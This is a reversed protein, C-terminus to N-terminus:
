KQVLIMCVWEVVVLYTEWNTRKYGGGVAVWGEVVMRWGGVVM